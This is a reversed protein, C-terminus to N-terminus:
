SRARRKALSRVDRLLPHARHWIADCDRCPCGSPPPGAVLQRRAARLVDGYWISELDQDTASGVITRGNLDGCCLPVRGDWYVSLGEWLPLCPHYFGPTPPVPLDRMEGAWTHPHLVVYEDPPHASLIRRFSKRITSSMAHGYPKLVQVVTRPGRDYRSRIELFRRIRAVTDDFRAGVQISEYTEPDEGDFSISLVGLGAAILELSIQDDLLTANTHICSRLGADRAARLFEPLQPHLLPEGALFFRAEVVGMDKAKQVLDRGLAVRM